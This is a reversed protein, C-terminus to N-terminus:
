CTLMSRNDLSLSVQREEWYATTAYVGQVFVALGSGLIIALIPNIQMAMFAWAIGAGLCVWLGYAPPEGAVAKNFIRHLYGM